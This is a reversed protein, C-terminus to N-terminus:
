NLGHENRADQAQQQATSMLNRFVISLVNLSLDRDRTSEITGNEWDIDISDKYTVERGDNRSVRERDKSRKVRSVSFNSAAYFVATALAHDNVGSMTPDPRNMISYDVRNNKTRFLILLGDTLAEKVREAISKPEEIVPGLM